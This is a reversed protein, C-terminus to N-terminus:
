KALWVGEKYPMLVDDVSTYSDVVHVTQGLDRRKNHDRLQADTPKEGTAKCEIFFVPLNPLTIVRDPVSRRAPSTFKEAVGGLKKVEKVLYAEVKSEPLGEKRAKLM